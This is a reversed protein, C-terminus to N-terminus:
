GVVNEFHKWWITPPFMKIVNPRKSFTKIVNTWKPSCRSWMWFVFLMKFLNWINGNLMHYFCKSFTPYIEFSQWSNHPILHIARTLIVNLINWLHVWMMHKVQFRCSCKSHVWNTIPPYTAPVKLWLRCHVWSTKMPKWAGEGGTIQKCFRDVSTLRGPDLGHSQPPPCVCSRCLGASQAPHCLLVKPLDCRHIRALCIEYTVWLWVFPFLLDCIPSVPPLGSQFLTAVSSICYSVKSGM